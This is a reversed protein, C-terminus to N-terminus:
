PCVENDSIRRIVGKVEIEMGSQFSIKANVPNEVLGGNYIFRVGRESLDVVDFPKAGGILVKPRDVVQYKLRFYQRKERGCSSEDGDKEKM